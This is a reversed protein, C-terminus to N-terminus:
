RHIEVDISNDIKTIIDYQFQNVMWYRKIVDITEKISDTCAVWGFFLSKITINESELNKMEKKFEDWNLNTQKMIQEEKQGKPCNYYRVM